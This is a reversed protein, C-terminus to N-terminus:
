EVGAAWERAEILRATNATCIRVDEAPVVVLDPGILGAGVLETSRDPRDARTAPEATRPLDTRYAGGAAAGGECRVRSRAIYADARAMAQVSAEDLRDDSEKRLRNFRTEAARAQREAQAAAANRAATYDRKTDRHAKTEADLRAQLSPITVLMAWALAAALALAGAGLVKAWVPALVNM